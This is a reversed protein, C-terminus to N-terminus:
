FHLWRIIDLTSSRDAYRKRAHESERVEKERNKTRNEEEGDKM